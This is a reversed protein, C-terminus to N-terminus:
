KKHFVFFKSGIYNIVIVMVSLVIKWINGNLQLFDVTLWLLATELVGSFLRCGVFRVLEPWVVKFSWDFSKFVIPKNTLFAVTVAVLWAIVNSVTASLNCYNYLPLYVIYNVLTTLVGFVLYLILSWYKKVLNRCYDLVM